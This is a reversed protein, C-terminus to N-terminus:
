WPSPSASEEAKAASESEFAAAPEAAAKSRAAEADVEKFAESFEEELEAQTMSGAAPAAAEVTSESPAASAESAAQPGGATVAPEPDSTPDQRAAEGLDSKAAAPEAPMEELPLATTTWSPRWPSPSASEAVEAASEPRAAAALKAASKSRAAEVDVERFADSLKEVKTEFEEVDEASQSSAAGGAAAAEPAAFRLRQSEAPWEAEDFGLVRQYEAELGDAGADAMPQEAGVGSARPREAASGRARPQVAPVGVVLLLVAAAAHRACRM